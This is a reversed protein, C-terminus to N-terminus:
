VLVYEPHFYLQTNKTNITCHTDSSLVLPKQGGGEEDVRNLALKDAATARIGRWCSWSIGKASLDGQRSKQRLEPWIVKVTSNNNEPACLHGLLQGASESIWNVVQLASSPLKGESLLRISPRAYLNLLKSCLVDELIIQHLNHDNSLYIITVHVTNGWTKKEKESM